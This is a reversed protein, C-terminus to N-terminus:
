HRFEPEIVREVVKRSAGGDEFTCFKKFFAKQKDAFGQALEEINAIAGILDDMTEVVPGPAEEKLDFYTGRMDNSYEELDYAYFIIPRLLNTYDFMVSSYDTILVDSALMLEQIDHQSSSCDVAFGKCADGLDLASVILHHLRLIFVHTDKFQERLAELDLRLSFHKDIRNGKLDRWTPAYLVVQKDPPLGSRRKIEAIDAPNNRRYLVDNRPSGVELVPGSYRFARTFIETTYRNATILYNWRGDKTYSEEDFNAPKHPIDLGMKKLPTGHQTNIYVQNGRIPLNQGFEGNQVLFRSCALHYYYSVSFRRVKHVGVPVPTSPDQFSWVCRVPLKKALIEECIAKPNDSCSLGRHSEFLILKRNIPLLRFVAHWYKKKFLFSVLSTVGDYIKNEVWSIRWGITRKIRALEKDKRAIAARQQNIKTQHSEIMRKIRALEEQHSEILKEKASLDAQLSGITARSKKLAIRVRRLSVTTEKLTNKLEGREGESAKTRDAITQTKGILELLFEPTFASPRADAEGRRFVSVIKENGEVLVLGARGATQSLTQLCYHCAHANQLYFLFKLRYQVPYCVLGPVGIFVIGDPKLLTQVSRLFGAPDKMHELLHNLILVDAKPFSDLVHYDGEHLDIGRAIGYKLFEQGLDCGRVTHGAELFPQLIGGAGAGIEYVLAGVSLRPSLFRLIERGAECQKEFFQETSQSEGNYIRRYENQYFAALTEDTYYPDSRVLGCSRCMVSNLPIGYRDIRALLLDDHAGCSCPHPETRYSGDELKGLFEGLAASRTENALSVFRENLLQYEKSDHDLNTLFPKM